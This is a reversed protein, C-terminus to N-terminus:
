AHLRSIVPHEGGSEGVAVEEVEKEEGRGREEERQNFQLKFKEMALLCNVYM